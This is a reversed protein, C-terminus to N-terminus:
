AEQGQMEQRQTQRDLALRPEVAEETPSRAREDLHALGAEQQQKGDMQEAAQAQQGDLVQGPAAPLRPEGHRNDCGGRKNGQAEEDVGHSLIAISSRVAVSIRIRPEPPAPSNAASCACWALAVSSMVTAVLPRTPLHPQVRM